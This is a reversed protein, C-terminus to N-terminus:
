TKPFADSVDVIKAKGLAVWDLGQLLHDVSAGAHATSQSKMYRGFEAGLDANAKLHDFFALDTNMALNYATENSRNPNPWRETAQTYARMCPVSRHLLYSLWESLSADEVFGASLPSHALKGDETERLFKATMAMRTVSRLTSEPVQIKTAVDAYSISDPQLPIEGLVKFNWIWELCTYQQQQVLINTLFDSPQQTLLQIQTTLDFIHQRTQLDALPVMKRKAQM